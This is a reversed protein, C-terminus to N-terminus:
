RMGRAKTRAAAVTIINSVKKELPLSRYYELEEGELYYTKLPGSPSGSLDQKTIPTHMRAVGSFDKIM